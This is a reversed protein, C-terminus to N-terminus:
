ASEHKVRTMPSMKKNEWKDFYILSELESKFKKRTKVKTEIGIPFFAEVVMDGSVGITRKVQEESFHGIWCTVLGQEELALLFNQIAAAAQHRSFIPGRDKGYSRVLKSDDSVVAVVYSADSVFKQQSAKALEQIKKEDSILVFKWGIQNGASPAYRAADIARIIKRWDPKKSSYRRVSKRKKIADILQM